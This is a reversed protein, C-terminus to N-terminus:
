IPQLFLNVGGLEATTNRDNVEQIIPELLEAPSQLVKQYNLRFM